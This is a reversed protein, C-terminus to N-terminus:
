KKAYKKGEASVLKLHEVPISWDDGNRTSLIANGNEDYKGTFLGDKKRNDYNNIYWEYRKGKILKEM